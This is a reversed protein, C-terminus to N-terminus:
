DRLRDAFLANLVCEVAPPLALDADLTLRAPCLLILESLLTDATIPSSIPLAARTSLDTGAEDSLVFGDGERTVRVSEVCGDLTGVIFRLLEVFTEDLALFRANDNALAVMEQWRARLEQLRFRYFGDLSLSEPFILKKLIMERDFARDFAVMAKLFANYLVTNQTPIKTKEQIYDRKYRYIVLDVLSETLGCAVVPQKDEECAVSVAPRGRVDSLVCVGEAQAVFPTLRAFLTAITETDNPASTVTIEFM